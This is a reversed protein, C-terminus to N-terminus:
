CSAMDLYAQESGDAKKAEIAVRLPQVVVAHFIARAHIACCLEVAQIKM